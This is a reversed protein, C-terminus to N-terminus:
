GASRRPHRPGGGRQDLHLPHGPVGRYGLFAPKAGAKVIRERAIQTSSGPPPAPCRRRPWRRWRRRGRDVCARHMKMLEAWSKQVTVLGGGRPHGPARRVGGGAPRFGDIVHFRSRGKYYGILPATREDYEVLRREVAQEKDDERQILLTRDKDCLSDDAPPNNYVHYTAQCHPCWRRGSLRKLLEHRPVEVSLVIMGNTHDGHRMTAFAEAQALTRPFGDLIYGKACDPRCLREGIIQHLLEDPVLGGKEM